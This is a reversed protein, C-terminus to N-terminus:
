DVIVYTDDVKHLAGTGQLSLSYSVLDDFPMELPFDSIVTKGVYRRGSPFEIYVTVAENNMFADELIEYAEDSEVFAGDCDISFSKFGALSETWFGESDKSTADITEASRNLTANRQGALVQDTGEKHIWLKVKMGAQKKRGM